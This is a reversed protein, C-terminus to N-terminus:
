LTTLVCLPVEHQELVKRGDGCTDEVLCLVGTVDAGADRLATILNILTLGTTVEDDVVLVRQGKFCGYAFM